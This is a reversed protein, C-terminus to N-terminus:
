VMQPLRLFELVDGLKTHNESLIKMICIHETSNFYEVTEKAAVEMRKLDTVLLTTNIEPKYKALASAEEPSHVHSKHTGNLLRAYRDYSNALVSVM